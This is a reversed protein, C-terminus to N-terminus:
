RKENLYGKLDSYITQMLPPTVIYSGTLHKNANLDVFPLFKEDKLNIMEPVDIFSRFISLINEPITEGNYEAAERLNLLLDNYEEDAYIAGEKYYGKKFSKSLVVEMIAKGDAATKPSKNQWAYLLDRLRFRFDEFEQFTLHTLSEYDFRIEFFRFSSTKMFIEIIANLENAYNEKTLKSRLFFPSRKSWEGELTWKKLDELTNVKDLDLNLPFRESTTLLPQLLSSNTIESVDFSFFDGNLIDTDKILADVLSISSDWLKISIDKRSGLQLWGTKLAEAFDSVSAFELRPFSSNLLGRPSFLDRIFHKREFPLM